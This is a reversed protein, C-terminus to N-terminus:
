CQQTKQHGNPYDARALKVTPNLYVFRLANITDVINTQQLAVIDVNMEALENLLELANTSQDSQLHQNLEKHLRQLGAVSITPVAKLVYPALRLSGISHLAAYERLATSLNQILLCVCTAGPNALSVALPNETEETSGFPTHVFLLKVTHTPTGATENENNHLLALAHRGSLLETM